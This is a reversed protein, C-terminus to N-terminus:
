RRKRGRQNLLYVSFIAIFLRAIGYRRVKHHHHEATAQTRVLMPRRRPFEALRRMSFVFMTCFLLVMVTEVWIIVPIAFAHGYGAAYGILMSVLMGFMMDAISMAGIIGSTQPYWFADLGMTILGALAIAIGPLLIRGETTKFLERLVPKPPREDTSIM